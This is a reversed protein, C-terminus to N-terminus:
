GFLLENTPLTSLPFPPSLTSLPPSFPGSLHTPSHTTSLATVVKSRSSSCRSSYSSSSKSKSSSKSSRTSSGTSSSKSSSTRSRKGSRVQFPNHPHIVWKDNGITNLAKRKKLLNKVDNHVSKLHIIIRYFEELGVTGDSNSDISSMLATVDKISQENGITKFYNALEEATLYGDGSEDLIEFAKKAKGIEAPSLGQLNLLMMVSARRLSSGIEALLGKDEEKKGLVMAGAKKLSLVPKKAVQTMETSNGQTTEAIPVPALLRYSSASLSREERPTTLSTDSRPSTTHSVLKELEISSSRLRERQVNTFNKPNMELLLEIALDLSGM